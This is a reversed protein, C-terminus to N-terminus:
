EFCYLTGTGRVLLKGSAVAPSAYVSDGLEVTAITEATDGRDEVILGNGSQDFIYVRGQAHVPTSWTGKLGSLRQQWLVEGDDISAAKLVSGDLVYIRSGAAVVSANGPSLRGNRWAVEPTTASEGVNLAMLDDGPLLLWEGTPTPSPVAARGEEVIWKRIGSRPDVAVVSERSQLVVETSDDPRRIAVPSTWNSSQPREIRWLNKGTEADIAAAFSDGQAEVQVIVAGDVVLPSSAMGIDNGAKPYDYGLGRYWLLHGELSLCVLDNSSFFAYIREGDSVPSPAANASTPHCFPRGTARFSQEWRVRGSDLDVGTVYLKEGDQGDSSTTVVLDGVVIPGAVSRGPLALKWTLNGGEGLKLDDPGSAGASTGDGRFGWWGSPEAAPVGVPTLLFGLTLGVLGCVSHFAPTVDIARTPTVLTESESSKLAPKDIGRCLPQIRYCIGDSVV